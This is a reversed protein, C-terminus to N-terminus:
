RKFRKNLEEFSLQIITPRGHPCTYPNDTNGMQAILADMEKLSLKQGSKIAGRCALGAALKEHFSDTRDDLMDFFFQAEEGPPFGSPVGRLLYNNGGFHEIIFGVQRFTIIQETLLQNERNNLELVAPVLLLQSDHEKGHQQMYQEYLVREHAAHQDIIYLGEPGQALIYLPLLQGVPLLPPFTISNDTTSAYFIAQEKLNDGVPISTQNAIQNISDVNEPAPPEMDLNLQIVKTSQVTPELSSETPYTNDTSQHQTWESHRIPPPTSEVQPIVM